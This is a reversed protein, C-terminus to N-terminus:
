KVFSILLSKLPLCKILNEVDEKLIYGRDTEKIGIELNCISNDCTLGKKITLEVFAIVPM